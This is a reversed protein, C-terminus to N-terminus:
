VGAHFTVPWGAADTGAPKVGSPTGSATCSTPRRCSSAVSSDSEAWSSAARGHASRRGGSAAHAGRQFRLQEVDRAGGRAGGCDLQERAIVTWWLADVRLRARGIRDAVGVAGGLARDARQQGLAARVVRDEALLAALRAHRPLAVAHAPDDVREVPGDVIEIAM